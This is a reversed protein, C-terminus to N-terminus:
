KLIKGNKYFLEGDIIIEGEKMDTLIDWHGGSKNKGGTEPYSNGLAFHITGGIKEDFGINNTFCKIGYNTGIGFEGLYRSGEDNNLSETLTEQNTAAKEKIVKGDKFWLEIDKLERYNLNAPYNFKVWGNVSKEVPGTFIEGDPFNNKGCGSIFVRDQISFTLDINPGKIHVNKKGKLWEIIALQNKDIKQWENIPNPENLLDANYVFDKYESLSMNAEQASANTPYVTGCWRLEKRLSRDKQIKNIESLRKRNKTFCSPEINSLSKSNFSALIYLIASAKEVMFKHVIPTHEFQLDNANKLFYELQENEDDFFSIHAGRLLAEKYVAMNLEKALLNTWVFLEDGPKIELSYNVLVRALRDEYSDLQIKKKEQAKGVNAIGQCIFIILIGILAQHYKRKM